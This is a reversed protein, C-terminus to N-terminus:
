RLDLVPTCAVASSANCQIIVSELRHTNQNRNAFFIRIPANVYVRGNGVTIHWIWTSFMISIEFSFIDSFSFKCLQVRLNLFIYVSKYSFLPAVNEYM